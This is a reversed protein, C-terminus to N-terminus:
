HLGPIHHMFMDGVYVLILYKPFKAIYLAPMFRRIPMKAVGAIFGGIEFPIVPQLSLFAIAWVGYKTIWGHITRYGPMKEDISLRKGLIGFFYSAFEGTSAGLSGFLAVLVPNWHMAAALLVSVGFPLPLISINVVTLIGFITLLALWTPLHTSIHYHSLLSQIYYGLGLSVVAFAAFTLGLKLWRTQKKTVEAM